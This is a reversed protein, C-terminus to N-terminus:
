CVWFNLGIQLQNGKVKVVYFFVYKPLDTTGGTVQFFWCMSPPPQAVRKTELFFSDFQIMEGTRSTIM